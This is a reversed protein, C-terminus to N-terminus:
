NSRQALLAVLEPAPRPAHTAELELMRRKMPTGRRASFGGLAGNSGVVRHCPIVLPVPNRAMAGGVARAAHVRGIDAALQGYTALRGYEIGRCARLVGQQFATCASLDVPVHFRVAEGAFYVRIQDALVPELEPDQEAGPGNIRAWRHIAAEGWGPLLLGCLGRRSCLFGAPGWNTEVLRYRFDEIVLRGKAAADPLWAGGDRAL